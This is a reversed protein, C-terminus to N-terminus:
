PVAHWEINSNCAAFRSKECAICAKFTGFASQVNRLLKSRPLAAKFRGCASQVNRLLESRPLAAKFTLMAFLSVSGLM